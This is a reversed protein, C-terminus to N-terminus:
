PSPSKLRNVMAVIARMQVSRKDDWGAGTYGWWDWCGKPNDSFFGETKRVQPYLVILRNTDAWRNYGASEVFALGVDAVTQRCGHLAVHLGCAPSSPATCSAPVYVYGSDALGPKTGAPFFPRQDFEIASTAAADTSHAALSGHLHSLVHKAGDYDCDSLFPPDSVSCANGHSFDTTPFTHALGARQVREIQATPVFSTYFRALADVVDPHVTKDEKGSLLFVRQRALDSLPDIHDQAEKRRALRVSGDADPGDVGPCSALGVTCQWRQMVEYRGAMCPGVARTVNAHVSGGTDACAYPGAAVVGVGSFVSSYAVGLQVAMYGGSSIGSVTIKDADIRYRGLATQAQASAVILCVVLAVLMAAAASAHLSPTKPSRSEM